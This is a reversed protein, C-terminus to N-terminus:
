FWNVVKNGKVTVSYAKGTELQGYIEDSNFLQLPILFNKVEFVGQDTYVMYHSSSKGSDVYLRQVKVTLEKQPGFGGIGFTYNLSMLVSFPILFTLVTIVLFTKLPHDELLNSTFYLFRDSLSTKNNKM